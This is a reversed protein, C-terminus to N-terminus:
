GDEYTVTPGVVRRYLMKMAAFTKQREGARMKIDKHAGGDKSFCSGLYKFSSVVEMVEGNMEVEVHPKVRQRGVVM